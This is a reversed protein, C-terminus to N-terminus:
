WPASTSPSPVVAGLATRSDEEAWRWALVAAAFTGWAEVLRVPRLECLDAHLSAVIGVQRCTNELLSITDDKHRWLHTANAYGALQLGVDPYVKDGTKIDLVHALDCGVHFLDRVDPYRFTVARDMTGAYLIEMHCVTAEIIVPEIGYHHRADVWQLLHERVAVIDAGQCEIDVGAMAEDISGFRDYLETALHVATGLDRKETPAEDLAQMAAAYEKGERAMKLLKPSTAVGVVANKLKWTNLAPRDLKDLVSNASPMRFGQVPYIRGGDRGTQAGGPSTM